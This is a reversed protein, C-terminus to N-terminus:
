QADAKPPNIWVACPLIPPAPQKNVFREPHSNYATLLVEKRKQIISDAQQYHVSAPTLLGIGSHYHQYNYWAFFSQCFQRADEICGFRRPFNPRYKMTKFQSESYPNDNSVHPRSHTKTVGLDGLLQAVGKSTMSSERDAHITLQKKPINQRQCTQAMLRKALATSERHAVMWGVVYRSYIDIIVYLYFYTWKEPGLLKTIDWSWVRNAQQALLEPKQYHSRSALNRREKVMDHQELIRYMTRISCLYIGQDLLSAFVEQPAKDVFEANTLTNLVVKREQESLGRPSKRKLSANSDKPCKHWRYWTARPMGLVDCARKTGIQDALQEM